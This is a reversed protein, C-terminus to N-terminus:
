RLRNIQASLIDNEEQLRTTRAEAAIRSAHAEQASSEATAYWLVARQRHGLTRQTPYQSATVPTHVRVLGFSGAPVNFSLFLLPFSLLPSSLLPSSLLPSSLLPSSHGFSRHAYLRWHFAGREKPVSARGDETREALVFSAILCWKVMDGHWARATPRAGLAACVALAGNPERRMYFASLAPPQHRFSASLGPERKRPRLTVSCRASKGAPRCVLGSGRADTPRRRDRLRRLKPQACAQPPPEARCRQRWPQHHCIACIATLSRNDVGGCGVARRALCSM